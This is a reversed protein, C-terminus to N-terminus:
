DQRAHDVRGGVAGVLGVGVERLPDRRLLDRLDDAEQDRRLRRGGASRRDGDVAAGLRPPMAVESAVITSAPPRSSRTVLGSRTIKGGVSWESGTVLSSM